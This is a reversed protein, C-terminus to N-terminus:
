EFWPEECDAESNPDMCRLWDDAVVAFDTLGVYCDDDFDMAARYGQARAAACSDIEEDVYVGEVKIWDTKRTLGLTFTIFWDTFM